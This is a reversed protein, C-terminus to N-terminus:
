RSGTFVYYLTSAGTQTAQGSLTLANGDRTGAGTFHYTGSNGAITGDENVTVATSSGLKGNGITAFSVYNGLFLSQLELKITKENVKTIVVRQFTNNGSTGDYTGIWDAALDKKCSSAAAMLVVAIIVLKSKM